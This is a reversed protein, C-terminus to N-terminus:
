GRKKRAAKRKGSVAAKSIREWFRMHEEKSIEIVSSGRCLSVTKQFTRLYVSCNRCGSIHELLEKELGSELEKDILDSLLEFIESCEFM